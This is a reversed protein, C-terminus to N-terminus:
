GGDDRRWPPYGFLPQRAGPNRPAAPVHGGPPPCANFDAAHGAIAVGTM